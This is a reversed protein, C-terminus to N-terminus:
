YSDPMVNVDSAVMLTSVFTNADVMIVMRVNMLMLVAPEM